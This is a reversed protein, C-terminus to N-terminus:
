LNALDENNFQPSPQRYQASTSPGGDWVHGYGQNGSCGMGPTSGYYTAAFIEKSSMLPMPGPLPPWPGLEVTQGTQTAVMSAHVYTMYEQFERQHRHFSEQYEQHAAVYAAEFDRDYAPQRPQRRPTIPPSDKTLGEKLRTFTTTLTHMKLRGHPLGRYSLVLSEEDIEASMPDDMEPRRHQVDTIEERPEAEARMEEWAEAHREAWDSIVTMVYQANPNKGVIDAKHVREGRQAWFHSAATIKQNYWVQPKLRECAGRLTMKAMEEVVPLVRYFRTHLSCPSPLAEDAAFLPPCPCSSSAPWPVAPPPALLVLTARASWPGSSPSPPPLPALPPPPPRLPSFAAPSSPPALPGPAAPRRPSFPPALPRTAAPPARPPPSPSAHTSIPEPGVRGSRIRM